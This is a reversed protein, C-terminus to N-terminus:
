SAARDRCRSGAVKLSQLSLTGQVSISRIACSNRISLLIWGGSASKISVVRTESTQRGVEQRGGRGRGAEALPVIAARCASQRGKGQLPRADIQIRGHPEKRGDWVASLGCETYPKRTPPAANNPRLKAQTRSRHPSRGLRSTELCMAVASSRVRVGPPGGGCWVATSGRTRPEDSM